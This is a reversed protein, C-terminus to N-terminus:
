DHIEPEKFEIIVQVKGTKTDSLEISPHPLTLPVEIRAKDQGIKLENL